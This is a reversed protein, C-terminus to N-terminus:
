STKLFGVWPPVLPLQAVTSPLMPSLTEKMPLKSPDDPEM